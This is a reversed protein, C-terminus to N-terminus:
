LNFPIFRKISIKKKSTKNYIYIVVIIIVVVILTYILGVFFSWLHQDRPPSYAVVLSNIWNQWYITLSLIFAGIILIVILEVVNINDFM